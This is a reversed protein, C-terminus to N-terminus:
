GRTELAQALLKELPATDARRTATEGARAYLVKGDPALVVLTPIYGRYHTALLARQADSPHSVDVVVFRVSDRFRPYLEVLREAERNTNWCQAAGFFVVTARGHGVEAEDLRTGEIPFSASSDDTFSLGPALRLDEAAYARAGRGPQAVFAVCCLVGVLTKKGIINM